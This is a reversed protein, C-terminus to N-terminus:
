LPFPIYILRGAWGVVRACRRCQTDEAANSDTFM